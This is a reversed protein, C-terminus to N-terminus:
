CRRKLSIKCCNLNWALLREEGAALCTEATLRVKKKFTSCLAVARTSGKIPVRNGCLNSTSTLRRALAFVCNDNNKDCRRSAPSPFKDELREAADSSGASQQRPLLREPEPSPPAENFYVCRLVSCRSFGTVHGPWFTWDCVASPFIFAM